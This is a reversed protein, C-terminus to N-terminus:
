IWFLFYSKEEFFQFFHTVKKLYIPFLRSPMGSSRFSIKKRNSEPLKGYKSGACDTIERPSYCSCSAVSNGYICYGTNFRCLADACPDRVSFYLVVIRVQFKPSTFPFLFHFATVDTTSFFDACNNECLSLDCANDDFVVYYFHRALSIVSIYHCVVFYLVQSKYNMIREETLFINRMNQSSADLKACSNRFPKQQLVALIKPSYNELDQKEWWTKQIPSHSLFIHYQCNPHFKM